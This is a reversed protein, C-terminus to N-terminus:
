YHLRAVYFTPFPLLVSEEEGCLTMSGLRPPSLSLGSVLFLFGSVSAKVVPRVPFSPCVMLILFLSRPILFLISIEGCLRLPRLPLGSFLFRSGFVNKIPWLHVRISM